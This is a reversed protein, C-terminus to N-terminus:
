FTVTRRRTQAGVLRGSSEQLAASSRASKRAVDSLDGAGRRPDGRAAKSLAALIWPENIIEDLPKCRGAKYDARAEEILHDLRGERADREMEKDWEENLYDELWRLLKWGESAPLRQIAAQIEAITSEKSEKSTASM